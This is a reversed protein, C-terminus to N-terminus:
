VLEHIGPIFSKQCDDGLGLTLSDSAVSSFIIVITFQCLFCQFFDPFNDIDNQLSM